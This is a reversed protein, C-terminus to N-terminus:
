HEKHIKIRTFRRQLEAKPQSQSNEIFVMIYGDHMIAPSIQQNDTKQENLGLIYFHYLSAFVLAFVKMGVSPDDDRTKGSLFRGWEQLEYDDAIKTESDLTVIVIIIM